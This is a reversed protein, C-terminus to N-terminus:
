FLLNHHTVQISPASSLLHVHHSQKFLSYYCLRIIHFILFWYDFCTNTITLLNCTKSIDMCSLYFLYHQYLTRSIKFFELDYISYLFFYCLFISLYPRWYSQHLFLIDNYYCGSWKLKCHYIRDNCLFRSHILSGVDSSNLQMTEFSTFFLAIWHTVM